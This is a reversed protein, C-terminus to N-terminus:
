RLEVWGWGSLPLLRNEGRMVPAGLRRRLLPKFTSVVDVTIWYVCSDTRTIWREISANPLVLPGLAGVSGIAVSQTSDWEVMARGLAEEAVGDLAAGRAGARQGAAEQRAVFAGSVALAGGLGLLYLVIPLSFGKM